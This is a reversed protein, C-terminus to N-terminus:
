MGLEMKVVYDRLSPLATLRDYFFDNVLHTVKERATAIAELRGGTGPEQGVIDRLLLLHTVIEADEDDDITRAATAILVDVQDLVSSADLPSDFDLAADIAHLMSGAQYLLTAPEDFLDRLYAAEEPLGRLRFINYMQSAARGFDKPEHSVWTRVQSELQEIEQAHTSM